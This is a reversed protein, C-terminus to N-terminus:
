FQELYEKVSLRPKGPQIMSTIANYISNVYKEELKKTYLVAQLDKSQRSYLTPYTNVDYVPIKAFDFYYHGAVLHYLVCGLAYIDTTEHVRLRGNKLPILKKYVLVMLPDLYRPTGRLVQKCLTKFCSLGFDSYVYRNTKPNFLINELKIDGHIVGNKHIFDLAELLQTYVLDFQSLWQKGTLKEISKNYQELWNPELIEMAIYLVFEKKDNQTVFYDSMTAIYKNADKKKSLKDLIDLEDSILNLQKDEKLNIIKIALDKGSHEKNGMFVTYDGIWVEGYAGKGLKSKLDVHATFAYNDGFRSYLDHENIMTIKSKDM